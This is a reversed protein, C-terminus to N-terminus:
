TRSCTSASSCWASKEASAAIERRRAPALKDGVVRFGVLEGDVWIAGADISRSSTSAACFRARARAPRASSACCRAPRVTSTSAACPRTTASASTSPPACWRAPPAGSMCRGRAKPLAADPAAAIQRRVRGARSAASSRMQGLSLVTVVGLYWVGRRDAARDRANAYYINQASHLIDPYQIVSALSTLKVMGIFENGVPPIIVRMAQPLVIRRLAAAADHRDVQGGRDARRRGVAHGARVVEATYAGQNIGLGLLAAIFPTMM